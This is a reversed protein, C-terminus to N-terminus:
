DSNERRRAFRYGIGRVTEIYCPNAPNPEIKQRLYRVHVDVTRTDVTSEYGWVVELLYDRKLVRGPNSMLLYLLQFEKLTLPIEKDKVLLRYDQPFLKIEGHQLLSDQEQRQDQWRQKERFRAKVRAVLERPSFPKTVYDDAGLELGVVRDAEEGRASLIIIPLGSTAQDSKLRRCVELGDLGPLMLDLILLDPPDTRAKELAENGDRATEVQYGAKQLNYRILELINKEDDVALVRKL